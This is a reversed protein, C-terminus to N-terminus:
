KSLKRRAARIAMERVVVAPQGWASDLLDKQAQTMKVYLVADMKDEPKKKPRGRKSLKKTM